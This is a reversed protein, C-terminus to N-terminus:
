KSVSNDVELFNTLEKEFVKVVSIIMYFEEAVKLMGDLTQTDFGMNELPPASLQATETNVVDLVEDVLLGVFFSEEDNDIELVINKTKPLIETTGLDVKKALDVVPLVLGELNIVGNIFNPAKPVRMMNELDIVRTVYKVDVAFHEKCLSFLLYSKIESTPM